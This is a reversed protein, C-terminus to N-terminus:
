STTSIRKEISLCSAIDTLTCCNVVCQRMNNAPVHNMSMLFSWEMPLVAMMELFIEPSNGTTFHLTNINLPSHFPHIKDDFHRNAEEFDKMADWHYNM